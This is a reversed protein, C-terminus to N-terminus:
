DDTNYPQNSLSEEDGDDEGFDVDPDKIVQDDM